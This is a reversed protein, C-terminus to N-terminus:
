GSIDRQHRRSSPVRRSASESSHPSNHRQHRRSSPVRTVNIDGHRYFEDRHLSQVILVTTFSFPVLILPVRCNGYANRSNNGSVVSRVGSSFLASPIPAFWSQLITTPIEDWIPRSPWQSIPSTWGGLGELNVGKQKSPRTWYKYRLTSGPARKHLPM